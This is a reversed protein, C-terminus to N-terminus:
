KERHRVIPKVRLEISVKIRGISSTKTFHIRPSGQTRRAHEAIDAEKFKGEAGVGRSFATSTGETGGHLRYFKIKVLYSKIKTLTILKTAQYQKQYFSLPLIKIEPKTKAM